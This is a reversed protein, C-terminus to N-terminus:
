KAVRRVREIEDGLVARVTQPEAQHKDRRLPLINQKILLTTFDATIEHVLQPVSGPEDLHLAGGVRRRAWVVGVVVPHKVLQVFGDLLDLGVEGLVTHARDVVTYDSGFVIRLPPLNKFKGPLKTKIRHGRFGDVLEVDNLRQHLLEVDAHRNVIVRATGVIGILVGQAIFVRRVQRKKSVKTVAVSWMSGGSLKWSTGVGNIAERVEGVLM